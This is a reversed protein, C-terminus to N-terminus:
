PMISQAQQMLVDARADNGRHREANAWHHLIRSQLAADDARVAWSVASEFLDRPNEAHAVGAQWWLAVAMGHAVKSHMAATAADDDMQALLQRVKEFHALAVDWAFVALSHIGARLYWEAAQPTQRADDFHAAILSAYADVQEGNYEILWAALQAHYATAADAPLTNLIASRLLAHKFIYEKTQAFPSSERQLIVGREQLNELVVNVVDLSITAADPDSMRALAVNWFARGITAARQLMEQELAPLRSFRALLATMLDDPLTIKDLAAEDVRWRVPFPLVVGADILLQILEELLLPNGGAHTILESQLKPPIAPIKCFIRAILESIQEPELAPLVIKSAAEDPAFWHPHESFLQPQTTCVMLLPIDRSANWLDKLIRLSADDAWHIDELMLIVPTGGATLAAFFAQVAAVAAHLRRQEPETPFTPVAEASFGILHEIKEAMAAADTMDTIDAFGQALKKRTIVTSDSAFIGFYFTFIDRLIWYPVGRTQLSARGQLLRLNVPQQELWHDFEYLLRSKGIGSEGDVVVLQARGTQSVDAFASQLARLATERGVMMTEIGEVSRSIVRVAYPKAGKVRYARVTAGDTNLKIPNSLQRVYFVGRVHRYMDASILISNPKAVQALALSIDMTEGLVDGGASASEKAQMVEGIHLGVSVPLAPMEAYTRHADVWEQRVDAVTQRLQLASRIAWEPENPRAADLGFFALLYSGFHAHVVGRRESVTEDVQQWLKALFIPVDGAPIARLFAAVGHVRMVFVTLTRSELQATQSRRVTHAMQQLARVAIDVVTNGLADRHTELASITRNIQAADM